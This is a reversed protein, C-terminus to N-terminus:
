GEAKTNQLKKLECKYTNCVLKQAEGHNMGFGETAISIVSIMTTIRSVAQSTIIYDGSSVACIV